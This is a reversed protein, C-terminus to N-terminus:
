AALAQRCTKQVELFACVRTDALRPEISHLLTHQKDQCQLNPDGGFHQCSDAVGSKVTYHNLLDCHVNGGGNFRM